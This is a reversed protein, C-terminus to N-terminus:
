AAITLTADPFRARLRQVIEHRPDQGPATWVTVTLESGDPGIKSLEVKPPTEALGPVDALWREAGALAEDAEGKIGAIQVTLTRLRYASRNSVVQSFVQYNPVLIQEAKDNRLVTTRVNVEEVTGIQGAVELRDGTTFPQEALLYLGAVFNKLVDQLSLSIAATVLGFTSVLATSDAGLASLAFVGAFAYIVIQLVNDLLAPLNNRGRIRADLTRRLRRRLRGTFWVIALVIAGAWLLNVAFGGLWHLLDVFRDWVAYFATLLVGDDDGGNGGTPAPTAEPTQLGPLLRM